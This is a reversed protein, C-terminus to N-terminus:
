VNMNQNYKDLKKKKFVTARFLEWNEVKVILGSLLVEDLEAHENKKETSCTVRVHYM